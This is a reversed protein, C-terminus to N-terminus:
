VLRRMVRQAERKMACVIRRLHESLDSRRCALEVLGEHGARRPHWALPNSGQRATRMQARVIPTIWAMHLLATELTATQEEDLGEGEIRM